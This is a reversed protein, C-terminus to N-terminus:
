SMVDNTLNIFRDMDPVAQLFVTIDPCETRPFMFYTYAEPLDEINRFHYAWSTEAPDPAMDRYDQRRELVNATLFAWSSPVIFNATVLDWFRYTKRMNQAFCKLLPTPQPQSAFFRTQFQGLEYAATSDKTDDILTGLWTFIAIHLQVQLPHSPYM